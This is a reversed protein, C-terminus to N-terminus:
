WVIDESDQLVGGVYGTPEIRYGFEELWSRIEKKCDIYNDKYGGVNGDSTIYCSYNSFVVRNLGRSVAERIQAETRKKCEEIAVDKYILKRAERATLM